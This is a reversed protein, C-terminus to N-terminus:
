EKNKLEGLDLNSGFDTNMFTSLDELTPNQLKFMLEQAEKFGQPNSWFPDTEIQTFIDLIAEEANADIDALINEQKLQFNGKIDENISENLPDELFFDTEEMEANNDIVESKLSTQNSVIEEVSAKIAVKIEKMREGLASQGDGLKFDNIIELRKEDDEEKILKDTLHEITGALFGIASNDIYDGIWLNKPNNHLIIWIKRRVQKANNFDSLEELDTTTHQSVWKELETDSAQVKEAAFGLLHSPIVHRAAFKKNKEKKIAEEKIKNRFKNISAIFGPRKGLGTPRYKGSRSTLKESTLNLGPQTVFDVFDDFTNFKLGNLLGEGKIGKAVAILLKKTVDYGYLPLQSQIMSIFRRQDYKDSYEEDELIIVRQSISTSITKNKLPSNGPNPLNFNGTLGKNGMIDAEKELGADDNIPFEKMQMTPKVRGQKQQVVHWAEHPLHREQGAAVHINTGQAYALANLQVPKASNYHVKVDDMSFGSLNEIGSKLNDPLGTNNEKKQLPIFPETIDNEKRQYILNDAIATGNKNKEEINGSSSTQTGAMQFVPVAPLTMLQLASKNQVGSKTQKAADVPVKPQNNM